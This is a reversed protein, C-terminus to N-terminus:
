LKSAGGVTAEIVNAVENPESLMVVHSSFFCLPRRLKLARDTQTKKV